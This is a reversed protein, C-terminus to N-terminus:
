FKGKLMEAAVAPDIRYKSGKGQFFGYKEILHIALPTIVCSAGVALDEVLAEGKQFTGDNPYPSPIRGRAEHHTAKVKEAIYVPNGLAREALIYVERLLAAMKEKAIGMQKLTEADEKIIEEPDRADTGLFGDASFQSPGLIDRLTRDDIGNIM